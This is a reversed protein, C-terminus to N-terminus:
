GGEDSNKDIVRQKDELSALLRNGEEIDFTNMTASRAYHYLIGSKKTHSFSSFNQVCFIKLNWLLLPCFFFSSFHFDQSLSWRKKQSFLGLFDQSFFSSIKKRSKQTAYSSFVRSVYIELNKTQAFSLFRLIKTTLRSNKQATQPQCFRSFKKRSIIDRLRHNVMWHVYRCLTDRRKKIYYIYYAM